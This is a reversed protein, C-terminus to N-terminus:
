RITNSTRPLIPIMTFGSIRPIIRHSPACFILNILRPYVLSTIVCRRILVRRRLWVPAFTWWFLWLAVFLFIKKSIARHQHM